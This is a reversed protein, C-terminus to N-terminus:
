LEGIYVMEDDDLILQYIHLSLVLRIPKGEPSLDFEIMILKEAPKQEILAITNHVIHYWIELKM